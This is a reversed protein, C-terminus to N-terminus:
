VAQEVTILFAYVFYKGIEKIADWYLALSLYSTDM